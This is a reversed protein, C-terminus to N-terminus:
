MKSMSTLQVEIIHGAAKAKALDGMKIAEDALHALWWAAQYEPDIGMKAKIDPLIGKGQGQCPNGAAKDFMSDDPGVICNIAHHLHLSVEQLTDYKAAFGAHTIATKLEGALGTEAARIGQTGFALVAVVALGLVGWRVSRM